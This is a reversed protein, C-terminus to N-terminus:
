NCCHLLVVTNRKVPSGHLNLDGGAVCLSADCCSSASPVSIGWVARMDEMMDDM